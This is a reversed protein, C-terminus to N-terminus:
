SLFHCAMFYVDLWKFYNKKALCYLATSLQFLDAVGVYWGLKPRTTTYLWSELDERACVSDQIYFIVDRVNAECFSPAGQFHGVSLLCWGRSFAGGMAVIQLKRAGRSVWEWLNPKPTECWGAHVDDVIWPHGKQSAWSGVSTAM